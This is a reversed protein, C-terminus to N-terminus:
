FQIYITCNFVCHFLEMKVKSNDDLRKSTKDFWSSILGYGKNRYDYPPPRKIGNLERFAKSSINVTQQICPLYKQYQKLINQGCLLAIRTRLLGAM